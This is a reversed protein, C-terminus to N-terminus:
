SVLSVGLVAASLRPERAFFKRLSSPALGRGSFPSIRSHRDQLFALVGAVKSLKRIDQGVFPCAMAVM